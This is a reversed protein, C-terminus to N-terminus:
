GRLHRLGAQAPFRYVGGLQHAEGALVTSQNYKNFGLAFIANSLNDPAFWHTYVLQNEFLWADRHLPGATNAETRDVMAHQM